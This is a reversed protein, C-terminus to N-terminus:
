FGCQNPYWRASLPQPFMNNAILDRMEWAPSGSETKWTWFFWGDAQEYADLQAEVYRRTASKESESWGATSGSRKGDCTGQRSSGPFEGEWRTQRGVGNLQWTCDTMAASWEGCVTWKDVGQLQRGIGCAAQVHDDVSLKLQEPSFVQYQHTDLITNSWGETMFGNWSTIPAFADHIVVAVQGYDRITGWGDMWYQRIKDMDLLPGLPENLLQIASVVNNYKAASYKKALARIVKITYKVNDGQQWEIHDRWGSNDFGNQSGPAGHLDIWVKLGAAGAWSIAQDLYALQGKVYPDNPRPAVAWYGVPIRVHNLGAAAIASFDAATYFTSWHQRLRALCGAKGLQACWNYEDVAGPVEAFLEPTIWPELVFWGGLNVGHVKESGYPFTLARQRVLDYPVASVSSILLAAAVSSLRLLSSLMM